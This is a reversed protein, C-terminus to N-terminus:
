DSPLVGIPTSLPFPTPIKPYVVKIASLVRKGVVKSDQVVVLHVIRRFVTLDHRSTWAHHHRVKEGKKRGDGVVNL